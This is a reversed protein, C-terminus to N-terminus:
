NSPVKSSRGNGFSTASSRAPLHEVLNKCWNLHVRLHVRRVVQALRSCVPAQGGVLNVKVVMKGILKCAAARRRRIARM